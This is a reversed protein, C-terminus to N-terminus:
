AGTYVDVQLADAPGSAVVSVMGNTTHAHCMLDDLGGAVATEACRVDSVTVGNKALVDTIAVALPTGPGVSGTASAVLTPASTRWDTDFQTLTGIGFGVSTAAVIGALIMPLAQLRKRGRESLSFRRTLSPESWRTGGVRGTPSGAPGLPRAPPRVPTPATRELIAM